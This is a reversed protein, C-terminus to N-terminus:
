SRPSEAYAAAKSGVVRVLNGMALNPDDVHLGFAADPFPRLAPVRRTADVALVRLGASTVCSASYGGEFEIWPTSVGPLDHALIGEDPSGDVDQTALRVRYMSDLEGSGGGLDSPNTCVDQVTRGNVAPLRGFRSDPPPKGAYANYDILCDLEESSTCPALSGGPFVPLDLGTLVAAILRSRVRTSRDIHEAVLEALFSSGESHGILVVGRGDNDNVMYDRWASVVSRFAVERAKVASQGMGKGTAERYMPAFVRCVQSFPSAELEGIATEQPDVHLNANVTSQHSVNPYLYFCDIPPDPPDEYDVIHRAGNPEIVTTELSATCPDPSQGPRCLWVTGSRDPRPQAGAAGGPPVVGMVGPAVFFVISLSLVGARVAVRHRV